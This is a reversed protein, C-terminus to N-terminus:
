TPRDGNEPASSAAPKEADVTLNTITDVIEGVIGSPSGTNNRTLAHKITDLSAGHQLALSILVASDRVTSEIDTGSKDSNIFVEGVSGDDYFGVTFVFPQNWYRLSVNESRRRQPLPRRRM